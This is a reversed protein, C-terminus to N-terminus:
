TAKESNPRTGETRPQVNVKVGTLKEFQTVKELLWNAMTLAAEPRMSIAAEVERLIGQSTTDQKELKLSGNEGISFEQFDPLPIRENYVSMAIEGQPTVGGWAGDVRIVRFFRCKAYTFKVKTPEAAPDQPIDNKPKESM